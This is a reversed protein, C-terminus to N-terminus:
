QISIVSRIKWIITRGLPIQTSNSNSFELWFGRRAKQLFQWGSDINIHFGFSRCYGFCNQGRLFFKASEVVNSSYKSYLQVLWSLTINAYLYFYLDSFTSSGSISGCMVILQNKVFTCLYNLLSIITKEVFYQKFVLIDMHVKVKVEAM